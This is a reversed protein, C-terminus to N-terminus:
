LAGWGFAVSLCSARPHLPDGWSVPVVLAPQVSAHLSPSALRRALQALAAPAVPRGQAARDAGRHDEAWAALVQDGNRQCVGNWDHATGNTRLRGQPLSPSRLPLGGSPLPLVAARN